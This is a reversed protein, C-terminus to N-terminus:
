MSFVKFVIFSYIEIVTCYVIIYLVTVLDGLLCLERDERPGQFTKKKRHQLTQTEFETLIVFYNLTM